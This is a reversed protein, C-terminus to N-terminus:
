KWDKYANKDNELYIRIFNETQKDVDDGLNFFEKFKIEFAEMNKWYKWLLIPHIGGEYDFRYKYEYLNVINLALELLSVYNEIWENYDKAFRDNYKPHIRKFADIDAFIVGNPADPEKFEM